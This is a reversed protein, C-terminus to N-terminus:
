DITFKDDESRKVFNLNMKLAMMKLKRQPNCLRAELNSSGFSFCHYNINCYAEHILKKVFPDMKYSTTITMACNVFMLELSQM